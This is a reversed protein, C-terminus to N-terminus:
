CTTKFSVYVKSFYLLAQQSDFDYEMLLFCSKFQPNVKSFIVAKIKLKASFVSTFMVLFDLLILIQQKIKEFTMTVVVCALRRDQFLFLHVYFNRSWCCLLLM